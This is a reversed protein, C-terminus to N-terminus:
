RAAAEALNRRLRVEFTKHMTKRLEEASGLPPDSRRMESIVHTAIDALALGWVQAEKEREFAGTRASIHSRGGGVWVRLLENMSDNEAAEAPIALEREEISM